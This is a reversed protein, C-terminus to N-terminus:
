KYALYAKGLKLYIDPTLTEGRTKADVGAEEFIQALHPVIAADRGGFYTKCSNSITKRRSAFAADAMSAAAALLDFGDGKHVDSGARLEEHAAYLEDAASRRDLRIVTSEVRPAPLFNGPAVLFQETARAYLSLKVTYAGYNKTGPRACMREAVERQVMVTASQMGEFNQFYDLVVTAAVAYPLNAVMAFKDGLSSIDGAVVDLADKKVLMFEQEYGALTDELVAPLDPDREIACVQAGARLLALTLTGIGPGIELVRSGDGVASLDLIKGIIADNILFNQGLAYKPSLDHSKLVASTASPSALPSFVTM